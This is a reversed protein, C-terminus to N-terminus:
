HIPLELVALRHAFREEAQQLLFPIYGAHQALHMTTIEQPFVQGLESRQRQADLMLKEM